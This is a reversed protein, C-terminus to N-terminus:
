LVSKVAEVASDLDGCHLLYCAATDLMACVDRVWDRAGAAPLNSQSMILNAMTYQPCAEVRTSSGHSPKLFFIADAPAGSIRWQFGLETPDLSFHERRQPSRAVYEAIQPLLAVSDSRIWLRRPFPLVEGQRLLIVDDCHVAFGEFLMRTILTTKGARAPGVIVMRKDNLNVCGAHIKTYEPLAEISLEYMRWFVSEAAGEAESKPELDKDNERLRYGRGRRWAEFRHVRSVPFDQAARQNRYDLAALFRECDSRVL